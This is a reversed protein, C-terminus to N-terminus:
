DKIFYENFRVNKLFIIIHNKLLKMQFWKFILTEM